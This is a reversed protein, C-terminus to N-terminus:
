KKVLFLIFRVTYAISIFFRKRWWLFLQFVRAQITSANCIDMLVILSHFEFTFFHSLKSSLLAHFPLFFFNELSSRLCYRSVFLLRVRFSIPSYKETESTAIQFLNLHILYLKLFFLHDKSFSIFYFSFLELFFKADYISELFFCFFSGNDVNILASYIM